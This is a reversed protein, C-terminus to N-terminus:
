SLVIITKENIGAAALGQQDPAGTGCSLPQMMM